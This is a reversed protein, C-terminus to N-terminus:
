DDRRAVCVVSVGCPLNGHRLWWAEWRVTALCFRNLLEPLEILAAHPRERHPRLRESLRVVVALPLLLSICYTLREIALGAQEVRGRLMRATYRRFHDLAVDHQSWLFQYAPVTLLLRGGPVLVRKMEALAATDHDIHEVVDLATVLEFSREAFPLRCADGALLRDLGRRRSFDLAARYPDLGYTDGFRGLMQMTSGSGCGVDLVRRHDAPLLHQELLSAIVAKRGVFWWYHDEFAFMRAHEDPRM